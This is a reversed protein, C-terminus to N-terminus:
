LCHTDIKHCKNGVTREMTPAIIGQKVITDYLM